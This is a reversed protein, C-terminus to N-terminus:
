SLLVSCKSKPVSTQKPPKAFAAQLLRGTSSAARSKECHTEKVRPFHRRKRMEMATRSDRFSM